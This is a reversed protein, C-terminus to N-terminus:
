SKKLIKIKLDDKNERTKGHNNSYTCKRQKLKSLNAQTEKIPPNKKELTIKLRQSM